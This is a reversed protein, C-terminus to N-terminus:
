GHATLDTLDHYRPGMWLGSGSAYMSRSVATCTVHRPKAASPCLMASWERESNGVLAAAATSSPFLPPWVASALLGTRDAYLDNQRLVGVTVRHSTCNSAAEYKSERSTPAGEREAANALTGARVRFPMCSCRTKVETRIHGLRRPSMKAPAQTDSTPPLISCRIPLAM